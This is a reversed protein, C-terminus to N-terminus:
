QSSRSDESSAVLSVHRAGPPTAASTKCTVAEARWWWAGCAAGGTFCTSLVRGGYVCGCAYVCVCVLVRECVCLMLLFVAARGGYRPSRVGICGRLEVTGRACSVRDSVFMLVVIPGWTWHARSGEERSHRLTKRGLWYTVNRSGCGAQLDGGQPRMRMACREPISARARRGRPGTLVGSCKGGRRTTVARPARCM